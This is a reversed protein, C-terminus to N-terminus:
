SVWRFPNIKVETFIFPFLLVPATEWHCGPRYSINRPFGEEDTPLAQHAIIKPRHDAAPCTYPCAARCVRARQANRCLSLARFAKGQRQMEGPAAPTAPPVTGESPSGSSSTCTYFSGSSVFEDSKEALM